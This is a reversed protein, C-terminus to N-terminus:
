ITKIFKNKSNITGYVLLSVFSIVYGMKEIMTGTYEVEITGNENVDICIFGNESEYYKIKNGNIKISYGCYYLFPLELKVNEVDEIEISDNLKYKNESVITAKGDLIYTKNERVNLYIINKSAKYPLYDRNVNQPGLIELGLLDNEYKKDILGNYDEIYKSVGLWGMVFIVLVILTIGNYQKFYSKM